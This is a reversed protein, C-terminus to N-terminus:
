SQRGYTTDGDKDTKMQKTNIPWINLIVDYITGSVNYEYIYMENSSIRYSLGPGIGVTNTKSDLIFIM